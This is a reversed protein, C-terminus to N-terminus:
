KVTQSLFLCRKGFEPMFKFFILFGNRQHDNGVYSSFKEDKFIIIQGTVQKYCPKLQIGCGASHPPDMASGRPSTSYPIVSFLKFRSKSRWFGSAYNHSHRSASKWSRRLSRRCQSLGKIEDDAARWRWPGCIGTSIRYIQGGSIGLTWLNLWSYSM